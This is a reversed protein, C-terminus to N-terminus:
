DVRIPMVMCVYTGDDASRFVIPHLPETAELVLDPGVASEVAYSTFSPNLAISIGEGAYTAELEVGLDEQGGVALAGRRFTLKVVPADQHPELAELLKAREVQLVHSSVDVALLREYDPYEAAVVLGEGVLDSMTVRLRGDRVELDAPGTADLLGRLRKMTAGAVVARFTTEPANALALDRVVLRYSDTAVLRLSGDKVELLVCTLVPREPDTGVAPLVQDLASALDHAEVTTATMAQAGQKVNKHIRAAIEVATDLRDRLGALHATLATTREDPSASLFKAVEALPMELRRLDRILSASEIQSEAYLRYRSMPDVASPRLLGREDYFRLASISLGSRRSFEGISIGLDM